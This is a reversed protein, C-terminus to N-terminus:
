SSHLRFMLRRPAACWHLFAEHATALGNVTLTVLCGKDDTHVSAYVDGGRRLPFRLQCGEEDPTSLHATSSSGQPSASVAAAQHVRRPGWRDCPPAPTRSCVCARDRVLVRLASLQPLPTGVRSFQDRPLSSLRRMTLVCPTCGSNFSPCAAICKCHCREVTLMRVNCRDIYVTVALVRACRAHQATACRV